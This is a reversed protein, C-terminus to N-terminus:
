KIIVTRTLLKEGNEFLTFFYTGKRLFLEKEGGQWAGSQIHKGIPDHIRYTGNELSRGVITVKGDISPNPFVQLAISPELQEIM